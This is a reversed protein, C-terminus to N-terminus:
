AAGGAEEIGESHLDGSKGFSEAISPVPTGNEAGLIDRGEHAEDRSRFKVGVLKSVGHEEMTVGYLADARAITRKNHSIVVFQSQQVFRDLIKIFRNINSEDLPADMEDLVCFPSPKVMYISFLLAVATMTKEGGSLLTISQLQKGPPKAIIEIGSELPDEEMTLVLNAQGGGFLERFMEQFNVRIKEFTDAFLTKTTSNIKNIVGILEDKASTTDGIQQELFIHRQELEEFEAIADLNVPGMGALRTDLERVIAEIRLWDITDSVPAETIEEVESSTEVVADAAVAADTTAEGTADTQTEFKRVRKGIERMCAALAYGDPTFERLAVQYRKQIHDDIAAAKLELQTSRVEIAGRQEMCHSQERRLHRLRDAMEEAAAVVCAREGQLMVVHEGAEAISVRLREVNVQIDGKEAELAGAREEYNQIDLRRQEILDRLEGIRAEMPQRQHHLSSHRQRETAVKIKLENLESAIESERARLTELSGQAETRRALMSEFAEMAGRVEGELETIRGVAEARRSEASQREWELSEHKRTAEAIQSDLMQVQVQLTGLRVTAGQKEERAETLRANASEVRQLIEGQRATIGNLATQLRAVEAALALTQNKRALVSSGADSATGGTLLGEATLVEGALTVACLGRNEAHARQQLQIAADVSQVIVHDALLAALLPRLTDDVRVKDMAWALAGEPLFQGQSPVAPQLERLLLTARGWKKAALTKMVSEAVMADKMLIAQLNQGLAAEIATVFEPEVTLHNTLAGAIAPQFFTPNDLGRLVAQTGEAFGEGEAALQRLVELSGAKESLTRQAEAFEKDAIAKESTASQVSASAETLASTWSELNKTADALQASSSARQEGLRTAAETAAAFESALVAFRAEAGDRQQTAGSIAMRLSALKSEIKGAENALSAILADAEQRQNTLAATQAQVDEMRRLESALLTSIQELQADAERLKSEADRFREEAGAIDARYRDALHGFEEVREANFALRSEHNAIRSHLDQVSQRAQSLRGEMEELAARREHAMSEEGEIQADIEAQRATLKELEHAGAGRASELEDWQRKTSHTELVRLDDHLGQYRRAKAAQRQVSGIQRKVERIIDALRVLNAETAELKRLAEKRQSKYKTIGAAEEFIARRDEPRSSLILDIKGQEMISYASRGIGTDMFLTHIDKLRCPTGNLLYESGGERFVRRTIKVEHWDLGLQEECESFTMSVEAMGLAPRSDTGSFIVDTMEGGRLAKASQEGLVWRIADLVNSKGCGNPGVVCTVGPDFNLVTKPAFSKFGFIELSKLYMAKSLDSHSKDCLIFFGSVGRL